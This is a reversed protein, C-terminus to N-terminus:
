RSRPRLGRKTSPRSGPGASARSARNTSPAGGSASSAALMSRRKWSWTTRRSGDGSPAAFAASGRLFAAEDVARPDPHDPGRYLPPSWDHRALISEDDSEVDTRGLDADDDRFAGLRADVDDADARVRRAAQALADHD